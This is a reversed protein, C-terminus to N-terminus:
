FKINLGIIFQKTNPYAGEDIGTDVVKHNSVEDANSSIEPDVGPYKTITFLNTAQVYIRLTQVGVKNLLSKNLTYGLILYKARLYSGDEIYYSTPQTTTSFYGNNDVQPNKANMHTPTWSDYLASYSKAGTFTPYLDTWYKMQDWIKNGHTGYFFSSFDFNKYSLGISIGYTFKPLASGLITRDVDTIVGDGNVDVFKFRGLGEDTEYVATPDGTAKRAADNAADIDAQTNFFGAIKYGYFQNVPHGVQNIIFNQGFRRGDPTYFYDAGDTVKTITNKYTTFTLGADLRLDHAVNFHGTIGLDFGKDKMSAINVFPATGNGATAPLSPNFLLDQIDKQYYDATIDLKGNLLTADIGINSNIDKEWKAAENAIQGTRFGQVISNNSGSIDYFSANKDSGFTFYQNDQALNLQNGMVGWGGRIKLDTIWSINKMFDEQSIRWGATIAPFYGFKNEETFKSSGDRRITASLLYKEDFQYDLKAFQSWLSSYSRGSYNSPSGSGSTLTTFSPDFSFYSTTSGGVDQNAEDYAETGVMLQIDHKKIVKHYTLTNTWTWNYGWDSGESYTNTTTNETNEYTPYGFNHYYGSYNEGGFSTHFTLDPIITVDAFINGFLRGNLSKNNRTRYASAYPNLSNGLNTGFNGAFNGKIDYVPIIPMERYSYGITGGEQLPTIQPNDTVTYSLNEGIRINKGINFQTNARIAYRKEHTYIVTGQQNLYNLGFFYRGNEGGGSVTINHNQTPADKNVEHYWDTGAKNAKNIRYFTTPDNPDTYEPNVYYLSPDVAPDGEKAGVPYIYDPLVPTAGSGYQPDKVPLGANALALWELDANGQPNLLNYPNGRLVRQTGYFGDYSVTVKGKGKKTTIIIVGNNARAGYISAAGADKLVQLSEVDRPNLDAINQTPVGDVVYLPNNNGFSNIGRIRVQPEEGPQGTGLVVVGPAQGQLQNSISGTPVKNMSEVSVVSVAGTLDKKKQATYGTVVVDNLSTTSIDLGIDGLATRGSVDVTEPNFGVVTIVLTSIAKNSQLSFTGDPSSQTALRSDRVQITAGAIPQKDTSNIVRGTIVTQAFLGGSVFLLFVLACVRGRCATKSLM